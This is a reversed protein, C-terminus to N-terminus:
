DALLNAPGFPRQQNLYIGQRYCRDGRQIGLDRLPQWVGDGPHFHLDSKLGIQWHWHKTRCYAKVDVGRFEADAYFNIRVQTLPPLYPQVWHLLAMQGAASSGGFGSVGWALPLLHKRYAAGLTLISLRNELDTRDM